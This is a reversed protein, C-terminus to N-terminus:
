QQWCHLDAPVRHSGSILGRTHFSFHQNLAFVKTRTQSGCRPGPPSLFSSLFVGATLVVEGGRELTGSCWFLRIPGAVVAFGRLRPFGCAHESGPWSSKCCILPQSPDDSILMGSSSGSGFDSSCWSGPPFTRSLLSKPGQGLWFSVHNGPFFDGSFAKTSDSGSREQSVRWLAWLSCPPQFFICKSCKQGIAANDPSSVWLNPWHSFCCGLPGLNLDRSQSRVHSQRQM